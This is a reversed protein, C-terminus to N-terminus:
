KKEYLLNKLFPALQGAMKKHDAIDPHYGCGHPTVSSFAFLQIPKHAKDGSFADKVRNLCKIFTDNKSGSVMPSNLLVVQTNPSHKYVTKIFAIYNAVYKDENFPLREKKGDGDSFDNTGLAICTIDPNFGFEYPKSSDKNLYLNEYVDPMIAEQDHEDNWNRYMGIGSVSSLLFDTGLERSTIPGYAYYANHQDFWLGTDCPIDAYDNGMGCTISDGIFEIKKKSQKKSGTINAEVGLLIVKGNAAETAKYLTLIHPKNGTVNFSLPTKTTEVKYRGHYIGDLEVVVYNHHEYTDEAKLALTCKNGEFAFTVSSGSSILIISEGQKEVRGKLLYADNAAPKQSSSCSLLSAIFLVLIKQAFM